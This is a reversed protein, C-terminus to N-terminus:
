ADGKERAVARYGIDSRCYMGDFSIDNVLNYAKEQAEGVSQGLATVGLM